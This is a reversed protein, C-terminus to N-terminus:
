ELLGTFLDMRSKPRQETLWKFGPLRLQSHDAQQMPTMSSDPQKFLKIQEVENAGFYLVIESSVTQNVGVYGGEDDKVYYITEANGSVDMRRLENNRFVAEIYKGKIQNFFQGDSINVIFVNGHLFIRDIQQNRLRMFITDASFQSTDSWLIPNGYFAFISDKTHYTVSDSIAQLDSKFIRVDRFALLIRSTDTELSDHSVTDAPRGILTDAALYLSDGDSVTILEPRGLPGGMAKLYDRERQYIASDSRITLDASTDRWVVRGVAEGYGGEEDDFFDIQDALLIQPEESVRSRGRTAYRGTKGDYTIEEAEIDQEADRYRANGRMYISEDTERYRIFDAIALQTSDKVLANGELEYEGNEEAYRILDATARQDAKVYQANQAFEARGNETDYFGDECYIRASDTTILTPGAFFVTKQEVSFVLTDARLEFDEDTVEVSDKFYAMDTEAHYYGVRSSLQTEENVLTAGTRYTAIKTGLDYDLRQTFLQQENNALGVERGSLKAKRTRGNYILSDGFVTLSDGQRISVNGYAYLDIENILIASDCYMYASDQKLIVNNILENIKQDGRNRVLLSDSWLIEIRQGKSTDSPPSPPQNQAYLDGSLLLTWVYLFLFRFGPIGTSFNL